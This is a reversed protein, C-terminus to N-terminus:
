EFSQDERRERTRAFRSEAELRQAQEIAWASIAPDPQQVFQDLLVRRKDLIDALSGNWDNPRLRYSVNDLFASKDPAIELLRLFIPSWGEESEGQANFVSISSALKPTRVQPNILSWQELTEIGVSELPSGRSFGFDDFDRISNSSGEGILFEDLAAIPQAEFLKMLLHSTRFSYLSQDEFKRKIRRCIRRAHQDANQGSLCFSAIEGLRHDCMDSGNLEATELLWQGYQILADDVEIGDQRDGFYRMQLIDIAVESGNPMAQIRRLLVALLAGSVPKTVGGMSINRFSWAECIGAEISSHLREIGRENLGAMSQLWPFYAALTPDTISFDLYGDLEGANRKALGSFYGGVVKVQRNEQPQRELAAMIQSWVADVDMAGSALGRGFEFIRGERAIAVENLFRPLIEPMTAIEIGYAEAREMARHYAAGPTLDDDEGDAIDLSGWPASFIYARAMDAFNSPKLRQELANLRKLAEAGMDNGDLRLTTRVAIWGETWQMEKSITAVVDELPKRCSDIFWLSRFRNALCNRLQPAIIQHSLLDVVLAIGEVYWARIDGYTAPHWGYDRPRAGFDFRGTSSFFNNELLAHLAAFGCERIATDESFLLNRILTRRQVPPAKTGSLHLHFLEKFPTDASDSNYNKPQVAVFNTLLRTARDFASPEYALAKLLGIWHRRNRNATALIAQGANGRVSQEMLALVIDPAVPAVNRLIQLGDESLASLDALAGQPALWRAVIAQAALNCHLYGLRRSLSKLLRISISASFQDFREPTIRDM